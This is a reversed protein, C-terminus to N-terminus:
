LADRWFEEPAHQIELSLAVGGLVPIGMDTQVKGMAFIYIVSGEIFDGLLIHFIHAKSILGIYHHAVVIGLVFVDM